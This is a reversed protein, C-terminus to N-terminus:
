AILDVGFVREPSKHLGERACRAGPDTISIPNIKRKAGLLIPYNM